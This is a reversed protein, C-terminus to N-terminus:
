AARDSSAPSPSARGAARADNPRARHPRRRHPLRRPRLRVARRRPRGALRGRLRRRRGRPRGHEPRALRAERRELRRHLDCGRRAQSRGTSSSRARATRASPSSAQTPRSCAGSGPGTSPSCTSRSARGVRYVLLTRGAWGAVVYRDTKETWRRDRARRRLRARLRRGRVPRRRPLRPEAGKFYAIAGDGRWALSFAGVVYASDTGTQPRAPPDLAPRAPRRGLHGPRGLLARPRGRPARAVHQLRRLARRVLPGRGAHALGRTSHRASRRADRPRARTPGAVHARGHLRRSPAPGAAASRAGDARLRLREGGPRSSCLPITMRATM